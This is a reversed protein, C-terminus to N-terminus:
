WLDESVEQWDRRMNETSDRPPMEDYASSVSVPWAGPMIFATHLTNAASPSPSRQHDM